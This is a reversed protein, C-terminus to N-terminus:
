RINDGWKVLWMLRAVMKLSKSRDFELMSFFKVMSKKIPDAGSPNKKGGKSRRIDKNSTPPISRRAVLDTEETIETRSVSVISYDVIFDGKLVEKFFFRFKRSELKKERRNSFTDGWKWIPNFNKDQQARLWRVLVSKTRGTMLVELALSTGKREKRKKAKTEEDQKTKNKKCDLRFYLFKFFNPDYQTKM